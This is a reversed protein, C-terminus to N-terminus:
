NISGHPALTETEADVAPLTFYFTSGEGKESEVRITGGHREVIKECTALGIGSGTAGPGSSFLEFIDEQEAPTMGVGNDSVAFQWRDGDREATVHIEPHVDGAHEISNSVLNQFLQVLLNRDGIVEPLSETAVHANSESISIRLNGIVEELVDECDVEEFTPEIGVQSYALLDEIMTRMRDAGNIAFEVFERAGDDLDGGYRRELLDLYSRITRLPQKLDHSAVYAFQELETNSRELEHRVLAEATIDREISAVAVVTGNADHVPAATISVYIRSGDARLRETQYGHVTKGAAASGMVSALDDGREEPILLSIHRGLADDAAYGYIQTAGRNWTVITGDIARTIIADASSDVIAALRARAALREDREIKAALMRATTHLVDLDAESWPREEGLVDFVLVGWWRGDVIIPAAGMSLVGLAELLARPGAAFERTLGAVCRDEAFDVMWDALGVAEYDLLDLETAHELPDYIGPLVWRYHRSAVTHGDVTQNVFLTVRSAGAAEAVSGLMEPLADGWATPGLLLTANHALSRAMAERRSAQQLAWHLQQEARKRESVDVIVGEISVQEGDGSLRGTLAVWVLEGDRRRLQLERDAVHGGSRLDALLATRQEPDAYLDRVDAVHALLDETTDYGAIMAMSQNATLLQGTVSTRFAGQAAQSWAEHATARAEGLERQLQLRELAFGLEDAVEHLRALEDDGVSHADPDSVSLLAVPEGRAHVTLATHARDPGEDPDAGPDPAPLPGLRSAELLVVSARRGPHDGVARARAAEVLEALDDIALLPRPQTASPTNTLAIAM